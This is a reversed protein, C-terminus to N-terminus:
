VSRLSGSTQIEGSDDSARVLDVEIVGNRFSYSSGEVDVKFPVEISLEKEEETAEIILRNEEIKVGPSDSGPMNRVIVLLGDGLEIKEVTPRAPGDEFEVENQQIGQPIPGFRFRLTGDGDRDIPGGFLREIMQRFIKDFDDDIMTSPM